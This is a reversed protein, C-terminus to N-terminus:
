LRSLRRLRRDVPHHCRRCRIRRDIAHPFERDGLDDDVVDLHRRQRESIAVLAIRHQRRDHGTALGLSSVLDGEPRRRHAVEVDPDAVRHREDGVSEVAVGQDDPPHHQRADPEVLARIPRRDSYPPQHRRVREARTRVAGLREGHDIQVRRGLRGLCRISKSSRMTDTSPSPPRNCVFARGDSTSPRARNRDSGTTNAESRTSTTPTVTVFAMTIATRRRRRSM